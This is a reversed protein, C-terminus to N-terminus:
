EHLFSSPAPIDAIPTPTSVADEVDGAGGFAPRARALVADYAERTRMACVVRRPNKRPPLLPARDWVLHQAQAEARWAPVEGAPPPVGAAKRRQRWVDEDHPLLRTMFRREGVYLDINHASM